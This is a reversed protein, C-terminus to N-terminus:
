YIGGAKTSASQAVLNGLAYNIQEVDAEEHIHQEAISVTPTVQTANFQAFFKATNAEFLYKLNEKEIEVSGTVKIPSSNSVEVPIKAAATPKVNSMAKKYNNAYDTLSKTQNATSSNASDTLSKSVAAAAGIGLIAAGFMIWQGTAATMTLSTIETVTKAINMATTFVVVEM